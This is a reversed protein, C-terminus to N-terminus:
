HSDFKYSVGVRAVQVNNNNWVFVGPGNFFGPGCAICPATSTVGSFAYYLYEGRLTWNPTLLYELGGGVVWGSLTNSSSTNISTVGVPVVANSIFGNFNMGAWAAGGTAYILYNNATYGIRGRISGLWKLSDSMTVFNASPVGGQVLMATSSASRRGTWSFDGELGVLWTPAFQWNYGAHPGALGRGTTGHGFSVPDFQVANFAPAGTQSFSQNPDGWAGGVDGGIYFGTWTPAIAAPAKYVPAKNPLDAASAVSAFGMVTVAALLACQFRRM